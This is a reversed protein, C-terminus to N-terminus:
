LTRTVKTLGRPQDPDLGKTLALHYAFLQMPVVYILPSLTEDVEVPVQLPITAMELLGPDSTIAVVEAKRKVLEEVVGLVSPFAKGPPAIVFAPFGEEVVAIPGHLFDASSYPQSGVYCTEKIKLAAELATSYNFGRGLVVCDNMYRYRAVVSKIRAELGLTQEIQGPVQRLGGFLDERGAWELSLMLLAVLQATYTKTAAVSKEEGACGVIVHEATRALASSRNNTLGVTLAGGERAAKVVEVIDLGEGSQSIGLVLARRLSKLSARYVTYISPAALSGPVGNIVEFLYKAFQAANDSTGRAAILVYEIERARVIRVIERVNELEAEVTRAVTQPEQLIERYMYYSHTEM